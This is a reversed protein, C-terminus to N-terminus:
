EAYRNRRCVRFRKRSGMSRVTETSSGSAPASENGTTWRPASAIPSESGGHISRLMRPSGGRRRSCSSSTKWENRSAGCPAPDTELEMDAFVRERYAHLEQLRKVEKKTLKQQKILDPNLQVTM